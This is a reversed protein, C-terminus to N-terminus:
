NEVWQRALERLKPLRTHEVVEIRTQKARARTAEDVPLASVLVRKGLVGAVAAGLSDLKYIAPAGKEEESRATFRATKCEVLLM